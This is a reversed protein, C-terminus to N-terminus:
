FFFIKKVNICQYSKEGTYMRMHVFLNSDITFVKYCYKCKGGNERTHIENQRAFENDNSFTKNFILPLACSLIPLYIIDSM